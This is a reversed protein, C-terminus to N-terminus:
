HGKRVASLTNEILIVEEINLNLSEAVSNDSTDNVVVGAADAM